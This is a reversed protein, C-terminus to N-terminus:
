NPDIYAAITFTMAALAACGVAYAIDKALTDLLGYGNFYNRIARITTTLLLITAIVGVLAILYSGFKLLPDLVEPPLQQYALRNTRM